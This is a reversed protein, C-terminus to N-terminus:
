GQFLWWPPTTITTPSVLLVSQNADDVERNLWWTHATTPIITQGLPANHKWLILNNLSTDVTRTDTPEWNLRHGGKLRLSLFSSLCRLVETQGDMQRDKTQGYLFWGLTQRDMTWWGDSRGDIWGDETLGPWPWMHCPANLLGVPDGSQDIVPFSNYYTFGALPIFSMMM